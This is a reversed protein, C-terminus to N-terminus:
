QPSLPPPSGLAVAAAAPYLRILFFYKKKEREREEIRTCPTDTFFFYMLRPAVFFPSFFLQKSEINKKRERLTVKEGTECTKFNVLVNEFNLNSPLFFIRKEAM